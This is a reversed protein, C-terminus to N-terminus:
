LTKTFYNRSATIKTSAGMVPCVFIHKILKIGTSEGCMACLTHSGIEIFTQDNTFSRQNLQINAVMRITDLNNFQNLYPEELFTDKNYIYYSYYVNLTLSEFDEQITSDIHKMILESTPQAEFLIQIRSSDDMDNPKDPLDSGITHLITSQIAQQWKSQTRFDDNLCQKLLLSNHSCLVLQIWRLKQRYIVIKIPRIGLELRILASATTQPLLLLRKFIVDTNNGTAM